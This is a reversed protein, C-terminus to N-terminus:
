CGKGHGGQRGQARVIQAGHHAAETVRQARVLPVDVAQIDVRHGVAVGAGVHGQGELGHHGLELAHRGARAQGRHALGDAVAREHPRPAVRAHDEGLEQPAHALAHAAAPSAPTSAVTRASARPWAESRARRATTRGTSPVIRVTAAAAAAPRPPRRRRRAAGGQDAHDLLGM